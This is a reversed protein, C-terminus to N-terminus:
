AKGEMESSYAFICMGKSGAGSDDANADAFPDFATPIQDDLESM